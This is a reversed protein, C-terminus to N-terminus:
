SQAHSSPIGDSGWRVRSGPFPAWVEAHGLAGRYPYIDGRQPNQTADTKLV